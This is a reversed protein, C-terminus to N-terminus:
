GAPHAQGLLRPMHSFEFEYNGNPIIPAQVNVPDLEGSAMQPISLRREMGYCVPVLATPHRQQARSADNEIRIAIYNAEIDLGISSSNASFPPSRICSGGM